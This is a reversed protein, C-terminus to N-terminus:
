RPHSTGSLSARVQRGHAVHVRVQHRDPNVVAFPLERFPNMFRVLFGAAHRNGRRQLKVGKYRQREDSTKRVGPSAGGTRRSCCATGTDWGWGEIMAIFADYHRRMRVDAPGAVGVGNRESIARSVLAAHVYAELQDETAADVRLVVRPPPARVGSSVLAYKRGPPTHGTFRVSATADRYRHLLDITEERPASGVPAGLHM